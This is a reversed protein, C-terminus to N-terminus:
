MEVVEPLELREVAGATRTAADTTRGVEGAVADLKEAMTKKLEELAKVPGPGNMDSPNRVVLPAPTSVPPAPSAVAPIRARPEPPRNRVLNAAPQPGKGAEATANWRDRMAFFEQSGKEFLDAGSFTQAASEFESRAAAIERGYTQWSIAGLDLLRNADKIRDELIEFPTRLSDALAAGEDMVKQKIKQSAEIAKALLSNIVMNHAKTMKAVDYSGDANKFGGSGILEIFKRANADMGGFKAEISMAQIFKTASAAADEFANTTENVIANLQETKDIAKGTSTAIDETASAASEGLKDYKAFLDVLWTLKKSHGWLKDWQKVLWSVAGAAGQIAHALSLFIVGLEDLVPQGVASVLEIFADKLQGFGKTFPPLQKSAVEDTIGSLDRTAQEAERMKESMGVLVQISNVSKESFGLQMLTQKKMKDSMGELRNEIDSIIDAFNRMEEGADYVAIGNAEWTKAHLMSKAQLERLVIAMQTGAEAGKVGQDAFAALMGIAEEIDKGLVRMAAGAKNTLAESFELTSADALTNAAVLADTVRVLNALNKAPDESKMGLASQADTALSTATALDFMGAQAFRTVAPLAKISKAADLGASALFYYAGAVETASFKTRFAVDRATDAMDRRMSESLDGMIATSSAMAQNFAEIPRVARVAAYMVGAAISVKGMAGALASLKTTSGTVEGRFRRVRNGAQNMGTNFQSSNLGLLVNLRGITAM